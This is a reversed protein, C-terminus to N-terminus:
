TLRQKSAYTIVCEWSCLMMPAAGTDGDSGRSIYMWHPPISSVRFDDASGVDVETGCADCVAFRHKVMKAVQVDRILGSM